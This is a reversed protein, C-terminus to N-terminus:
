ANAEGRFLMAAIQPSLEERAGGLLAAITCNVEIDGDSLVLGGPFDRGADALTLKGNSGLLKNAEAVVDKGIRGHEAANLVVQEGGGRSAKAAVAALWAVKKADDLQTLMRGAEDFTKSIVRQKAALELKRAEMSAVALRRETLEAATQRAKPLINATREDALKKYNAAVAAAEQKAKALAADNEKQADDAIRATIRNIGNM